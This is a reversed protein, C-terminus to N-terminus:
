KVEFCGAEIEQGPRSTVIAPVKPDQSTAAFWTEFDGAPQPDKPGVTPKIRRSYLKFPDACKKVSAPSVTVFIPVATDKTPDADVLAGKELQHLLKAKGDLVVYVNQGDVLRKLNVNGSLPGVVTTTQSVAASACAALLIITIPKM